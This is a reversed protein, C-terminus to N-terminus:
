HSFKKQRHTSLKHSISSAVSENKKLTPQKNILNSAYRKQKDGRGGENGRGGMTGTM